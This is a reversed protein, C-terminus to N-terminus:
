VYEIEVNLNSQILLITYNGYGYNIAQPIHVTGTSGATIGHTNSSIVTDLNQALAAGDIGGFGITIPEIPGSQGFVYLLAALRRTNVEGSFKLNASKDLQHFELIKLDSKKNLAEKTAYTEFINNGNEDNIANIAMKAKTVIGDEDPDYSSKKMTENFREKVTTNDSASIPIDDGTLVISAGTKGNVTTPDGQPGKEGQPGQIGQIGQEGQVGQPGVEGKEGQLGQPGPDGKEGQVGQPGKPGQIGQGGKEGTDGKEGQPGQIGQIGQEGQEGKPGQVGQIGQVGQPGQPGQLAGVNTWQEKDVDWIYITNSDYTGVAYSDGKEGTPHAEKLATLSAYLGNIIFNKGDAGDLGKEGKPGQVGQIGQVGQLGQPGPDGQPGQPGQAGTDGKVGQKGQPGTPGAVGQLGREGQVGQIGQVGQAGTEGKIGPIGQIGQLGQVGQPGKINRPQPLEATDTETYIWSLDGDGTVVPVFVKGQKGQVGQEGRMGQPGTDGTDGKIGAVVTVGDVDSVTTNTFKLRSRQPRERNDGDIIIHGSSATAVFDTGNLSIEIQGDANVKIAKITESIVAKDTILKSEKFDKEVDDILENFHPIIVDNSLEDLKKQMELTSLGPVDPMGVNGKGATDEATIKNYAM